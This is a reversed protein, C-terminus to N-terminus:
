NSMTIANDNDLNAYSVITTYENRMYFLKVRLCLTFEDLPAPFKHRYRIFTENSYFGDSQM